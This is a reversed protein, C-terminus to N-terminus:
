VLGVWLGRYGGLRYGGYIVLESLWEHAVWATNNTTYSFLDTRPISRGEWITKGLKLHLWTDPDNLRNRCTLFTLMALGFALMAPFSFAWRALWAIRSRAPKM